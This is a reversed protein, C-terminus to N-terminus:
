RRLLLAGLFAGAGLAILVATIPQERVAERLSDANEETWAEVDEAVAYAKEKAQSAAEEALAFAREAVDEASRMATAARVSAVEGVDGALGRMDTQLAEFDGRLAMLRDDINSTAARKKKAAM